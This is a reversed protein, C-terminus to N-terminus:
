KIIKKSEDRGGAEISRCAHVLFNVRVEINSPQNPPHATQFVPDLLPVDESAFGPSASQMERDRGTCGTVAGRDKDWHMHIHQDGLVRRM